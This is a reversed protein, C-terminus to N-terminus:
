AVPSGPGVDEPAPMFWDPTGPLHRRQGGSSGGSEPNETGVMAGPNIPGGDDSPMGSQANPDGSGGDDSPRGIDSTEEPMGGDSSAYEPSVDAALGSSVDETGPAGAYRREGGTDNEDQSDNMGGFFHKIADEYEFPDFSKLADQTTTPLDEAAQKLLSWLQEPNSALDNAAFGALPNSGGDPNGSVAFKIAWAFITGLEVLMKTPYDSGPTPQMPPMTDPDQQTLARIWDTPRRPREVARASMADAQTRDLWGIASKAGKRESASKPMAAKAGVVDGVARVVGQRLARVAQSLTESPGALVQRLVADAGLWLSNWQASGGMRRAEDALASAALAHKTICDPCHRSSDGLHGELLLLEKALLVLNHRPDDLGFLNAGPSASSHVPIKTAQPARYGEAREPRLWGGMQMSRYQGYLHGRIAPPRLQQIVADLLPPPGHEPELPGDYLLAVAASNGKQCAGNCQCAGGKQCAHERSPPTPRGRRVGYRPPRLQEVRAGPLTQIPVQIRADLQRM